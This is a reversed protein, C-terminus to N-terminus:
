GQHPTVNIPNIHEARLVHDETELASKPSDQVTKIAAQASVSKLRGSQAMDEVKWFEEYCKIAWHIFMQLIKLPKLIEFNTLLIKWSQSPCDCGTM